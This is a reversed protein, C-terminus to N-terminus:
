LYGRQAMADALSDIPPADKKYGMAEDHAEQEAKQRTALEVVTLAEVLSQRVMKFPTGAPFVIVDTGSRRGIWTVPQGDKDKAGVDLVDVAFVPGAGGM